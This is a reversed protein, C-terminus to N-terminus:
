RPSPADPALPHATVCPCGAYLPAPRPPARFPDLTSPPPPVPTRSWRVRAKEVESVPNRYVKVRLIFGEGSGVEEQGRVQKGKVDDYSLTTRSLRVMQLQGLLLRLDGSAGEVLATM